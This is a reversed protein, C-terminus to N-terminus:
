TGNSDLGKIENQIKISLFVMAIFHGIAFVPWVLYWFSIKNLIKSLNGISESSLDKGFIEITDPLFQVYLVYTQVIFLVILVFLIFIYRKPKINKVINYLKDEM